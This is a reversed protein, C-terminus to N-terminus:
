IHKYEHERENKFPFNCAHEGGEYLEIALLPMLYIVVGLLFKSM